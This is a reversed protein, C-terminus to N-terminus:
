RTAGARSAAAATMKKPTMGWGRTSNASCAPAASKPYARGIPTRSVVAARSENSTQHQLVDSDLELGDVDLARDLEEDQEAELLDVRRGGEGVAEGPQLSVAGLDVQHMLLAWGDRRATVERHHRGVEVGGEGAKALVAELGLGAAGM